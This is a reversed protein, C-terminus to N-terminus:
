PQNEQRARPNNFFLRYGNPEITGGADIFRAMDDADFRTDRELKFTGGEPLKTIETSLPEWMM